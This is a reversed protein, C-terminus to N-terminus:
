ARRRVRSAGNGKAAEPATIAAERLERIVRSPRAPPDALTHRRTTRRRRNWTHRALQLPNFKFLKWIAAVAILSRCTIKPHTALFMERYHPRFRSKYHYIGRVDFLWNMRRWWFGCVFPLIVSERDIPPWCRVFPMLSLSCYAVGEAKLQRMVHMM